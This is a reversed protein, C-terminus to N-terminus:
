SGGGIYRWCAGCHHQCGYCSCTCRNPRSEYGVCDGGFEAGHEDRFWRADEPGDPYFYEGFGNSMAGEPLLDSM